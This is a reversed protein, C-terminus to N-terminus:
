FKIANSVIWYFLLKQEEIWEIMNLWVTVQKVGIIEDDRSKKVVKSEFKIICKDQPVFFFTIWFSDSKMDHSLHGFLDNQKVLGDKKPVKNESFKNKQISKANKSKKFEIKFFENM